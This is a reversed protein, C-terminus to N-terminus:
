YRLNEMIARRASTYPGMQVSLVSRKFPDMPVHSRGLVFQAILDVVTHTFKKHSLVVTNKTWEVELGLM